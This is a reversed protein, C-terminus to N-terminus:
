TGEPCPGPGPRRASRAVPRFIGAPESATGAAAPAGTEDTGPPDIGPIAGAADASLYTMVYAAPEDGAAWVTHM